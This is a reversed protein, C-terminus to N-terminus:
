NGRRWTRNTAWTQGAPGTTTITRSGETATGEADSTRTVTRGEPGVYTGQRDCVYTGNAADCDRMVTTTGGYPHTTVRQTEAIAPLSAGLTAICLISLFRTM